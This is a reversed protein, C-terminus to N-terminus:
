INHLDNYPVMFFIYNAHLGELTEGSSLRIDKENLVSM